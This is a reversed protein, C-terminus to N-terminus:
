MWAQQTPLILYQSILTMLISMALVQCHWMPQISQQPQLFILALYRTAKNYYIKFESNGGQLNAQNSSSVFFTINGNVLDLQTFQPLNQAVTVINDTAGSVILFGRIADIDFNPISSTPVTIAKIISNPAAASASFDSDYGLQAWSASTVTNTAITTAAAVTTATTSSTQNTSYTFRGAGYLGGVPAPTAFPTAGGTNRNGYLSGGNTFPAKTTGYQFDLFFVLGSPLNMPQVSVFEKAAIAGFVQSAQVWSSSDVSHLPLQLMDPFKVFGLGHMLAQTNKYVDQYRKQMWQRYSTVGGAVCIHPNRAVAQKLYTYDNDYTTFVFMPNLDRKLMLEYNDKSAEHNNIVDLMVYKESFQGFTDLFKCYNDINLWGMKGNTSNFLTFAGSDIM